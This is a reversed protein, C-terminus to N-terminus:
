LYCRHHNPHFLIGRKTTESFFAAKLRERTKEDRDVFKLMPLPPLGIIEAEISEEQISERLGQMLRKGLRWMYQIGDQRKLERITALAAVQMIEKKGVVAAIPYGNAIAKSVTALDPIVGFYEQAGGLAMRFGTRIEDYILVAGYEHTLEKAGELFGEQPLEKSAEFPQM